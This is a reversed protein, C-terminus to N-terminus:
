CGMLRSYRGCLDSRLVLAGVRLLGSISKQRFSVLKLMAKVAEETTPVYPVDVQHKTQRTQAVTLSTFLFLAALSCVTLKHFRM